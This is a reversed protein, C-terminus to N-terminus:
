AKRRFSRGPEAFGAAAAASQTARARAKRPKARKTEEAVHLEIGAHRQLAGIIALLNSVQPNGSRGLMRMLSKSPIGVEKALAEFGITTNVYDRLVEKGINLEGCLFADVGERLMAVRFGPNRRMDDLVMEKYDRTLPM